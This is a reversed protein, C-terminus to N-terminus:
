ELDLDKVRFVHQFKDGCDECHVGGCCDCYRLNEHSCLLIDLKKHCECPKNGDIYFDSTTCM